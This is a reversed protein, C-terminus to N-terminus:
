SYIVQMNKEIYKRRNPNIARNTILDVKKGLLEELEQEIGILDLLNKREAFDVLLDIDSLENQENRAFSGFVAIKKANHAKLKEIIKGFIEQKSMNPISYECFLLDKPFNLPKLLDYMLAM